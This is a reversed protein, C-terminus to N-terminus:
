LQQLQLDSKYDKLRKCATAYSVNLSDAAERINNCGVETGVKDTLYEVLQETTVPNPAFPM